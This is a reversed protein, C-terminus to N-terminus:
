QICNTIQRQSKMLYDCGLSGFVVDKGNTELRFRQFWQVEKGGADYQMTIPVGFFDQGGYTRYFTCIPEKMVHDNVFCPGSGSEKARNGAAVTDWGNNLYMDGLLMLRMRYPDDDKKNEDVEVRGAYFYQSLIGGDSSQPMIPNGLLRVGDTRKQANWYTKFLRTPNNQDCVNINTAAVFECGTDSSQKEAPPPVDGPCFPMSESCSRLYWTQIAFRTNPFVALVLFAVVGLGGIVAMPRGFTDFFRLFPEQLKRVSIRRGLGTLDRTLTGGVKTVVTTGAEHWSIADDLQATRTGQQGTLHREGMTSAYAILDGRLAATEALSNLDPSLTQLMTVAGAFEGLSFSFDSRQQRFQAIKGNLATTQASVNELEGAITTADRNDPTLVMVEDRLLRQSAQLRTLRVALSPERSVQEVSRRVEEVRSSALEELRNDAQLLLDALARGSPALQAQFGRLREVSGVLRVADPSRRGLHGQLDRLAAFAEEVPGLSNLAPGFQPIQQLASRYATGADEFRGESKAKDGQETLDWAYLLENDQVRWRDVQSALEEDLSVNAADLIRESVDLREKVDMARAKLGSNLASQIEGPSLRRQVERPMRRNRLVNIAARAMPYNPDTPAVQMFANMAADLDDLAQLRRGELFASVTAPQGGSFQGAPQPAASFQGPNQPPGNFQGSAQQSGGFQGPSPQAGGFQSADQANGSFQSLDQPSGGFQASGQSNPASRDPAAPDNGWQPAVAGANPPQYSSSPGTASGDLESLLQQSRGSADDPLTETLLEIARDQFGPQNQVVTRLRTLLDPDGPKTNLARRLRDWADNWAGEQINRDIIQLQAM